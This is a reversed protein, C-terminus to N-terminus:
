DGISEGIGLSEKGVLRDKMASIGHPLVYEEGKVVESGEPLMGKVLKMFEEIEFNRGVIKM